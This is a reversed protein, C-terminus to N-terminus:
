LVDDCKQKNILLTFNVNDELEFRRGNQYTFTITIEDFETNYTKLFVLTSPEVNLFYAYSKNPTFTYLVQNKKLKDSNNGAKIQALLIPLRTLLKNSTLIKLGPGTARKKRPNLKVREAITKETELKIDKDCELAPMPPLDDEDLYLDVPLNFPVNQVKMRKKQAKALKDYQTKYINLLKNYLELATNLM